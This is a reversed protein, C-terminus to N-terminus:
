SGATFSGQVCILEKPTNHECQLPPDTAKVVGTLQFVVPSHPDQVPLGSTAPSDMLGM